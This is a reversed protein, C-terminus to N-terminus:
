CGGTSPCGSPVVYSPYYDYRIIRRGQGDLLTVPMSPLPQSDDAARRPDVRQETHRFVYTYTGLVPHLVTGDPADVRVARVGDYLAFAGAFLERPCVKGDGPACVQAWAPSTDQHRFGDPGHWSRPVPGTPLPGGDEVGSEADTGGAAVNCRAFRTHGPSVFTATLGQADETYTDLTWGDRLDAPTVTHVKPGTITVGQRVRGGSTLRGPGLRAPKAVAACRDVVSQEQPTLAPPSTTPSDPTATTGTSGAPGVRDAGASGLLQGGVVVAVVGAAVLGAASAGYRRRRRAQARRAIMSGDFGLPAGGDDAAHDLLDTIRENM